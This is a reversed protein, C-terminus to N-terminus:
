GNQRSILCFHALELKCGTGLDNCDSCWQSNGAMQSRTTHYHLALTRPFSRIGWHLSSASLFCFYFSPLSQLNQKVCSSTLVPVCRETWPHCHLCGVILHQLAYMSTDSNWCGYQLFFTIYKLHHLNVYRFIVCYIYPFVSLSYWCFSLVHVCSLFNLTNSYTPHIPIFQIFWKYILLLYLNQLSGRSKSLDTDKRNGAGPIRYMLDMYLLAMEKSYDGEATRRLSCPHHHGESSTLFSNLIPFSKYHVVPIHPPSLQLDSCLGKSWSCM